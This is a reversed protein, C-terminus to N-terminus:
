AGEFVRAFGRGIATRADGFFDFDFHFDSVKDYALSVRKLGATVIVSGDDGLLRVPNNEVYAMVAKHIAEAPLCHFLVGMRLHTASSLTVDIEVIRPEFDPLGLLDRFYPALLNGIRRGQEPSVTANSLKNTTIM